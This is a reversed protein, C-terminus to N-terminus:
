ASPKEGLGRVHQCRKKITEPPVPSTYSDEKELVELVQRAMDPFPGKAISANAGFETVDIMQDATVASLIVLHVHDLNPM